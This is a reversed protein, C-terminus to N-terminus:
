EGHDPDLMVGCDLDLGRLMGEADMWIDRQGWGGVVATVILWCASEGMPVGTGAGSRGIEERLDDRDGRRRKEILRQKLLGLAARALNRLLNMDDASVSEEVRSLLAFMWRAHSETITSTYLELNQLHVNIWHTFYM